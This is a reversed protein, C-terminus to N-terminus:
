DDSQPIISAQVCFEVLTTKSRRRRVSANIRSIEYCSFEWISVVSITIFCAWVCGYRVDMGCGNNMHHRFYIHIRVCARVRVHKVYFLVCRPHMLSSPNHTANLGQIGAGLLGRVAMTHPFKEEFAAQIALELRAFTKRRVWWRDSYMGGRM